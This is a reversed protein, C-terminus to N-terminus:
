SEPGTTARRLLEAYAAPDHRDVIPVSAAEPGEWHLAIGPNTVTHGDPLSFTPSGPVRDTRATAYDHMLDARHRGADLAATLSATDLQATPEDRAVEAAVELIVQRHAINRSHTWFAARLAIDLAEGAGLSQASAALVAEAALLVTHPYLDDAAAWIRLGAGPVVNSLGAVEADTSRRRHPGNFLELAFVHHEFRVTAARDGVPLSARAARLGHLALYAFPCLLDSWVQIM